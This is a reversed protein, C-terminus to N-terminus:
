VLKWEYFRSSFFLNRKSVDLITDVNEAKELRQVCNDNHFNFFKHRKGCGCNEGLAGETSHHNYCYCINSKSYGLM